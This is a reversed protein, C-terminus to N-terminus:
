QMCLICDMVRYAVLCKFSGNILGDASMTDDNIDAKHGRYNLKAKIRFADPNLFRLNIVEDNSQDYVVMTSLDPNKKKFYNNRNLDFENNEITAVVTGRADFINASLALKGDKFDVTLL